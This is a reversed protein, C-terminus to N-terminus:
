EHRVARAIRRAIGNLERFLQARCIIEGSPAVCEVARFLDQRVAVNRRYFQGHDIAGIKDDDSGENEAL